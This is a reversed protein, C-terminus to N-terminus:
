AEKEIRQHEFALPQLALRLEQIALAIGAMMVLAGSVFLGAGAPWGPAGPCWGWHWLAAWCAYCRSCCASSSACIWGARHLLQHGLEYLVEIRQRLSAAEAGEAKEPPMGALRIVLDFREKNMTRSRNALASMRNYFALCLLGNASVMVVPAVCTQITELAPFM